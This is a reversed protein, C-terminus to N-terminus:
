ASVNKSSRSLPAPRTATPWGRMLLMGGAISLLFPICVPGCLVVCDPSVEISIRQRPDGEEHSVEVVVTGAWKAEFTAVAMGNSDTLLTVERDDVSTFGLPNTFAIDGTSQDKVVTFVLEREPVGLDRFGQALASIEGTTGVPVVAPGTSMVADVDLDNTRGVVFDSHVDSFAIEGICVQPDTSIDLGRIRYAKNASDAHKLGSRFRKRVKMGNKLVIEVEIKDILGGPVWDIQIAKIDEIKLDPDKINRVILTEVSGKKQVAKVKLSNEQFIQIEASDGNEFEMTIGLGAGTDFGTLNVDRLSLCVPSLDEVDIAIGQDPEAINFKLDGEQIFPADSGPLASYRDELIGDEFDDVVEELAIFATQGASDEAFMAPEAVLFEIGGDFAGHQEAFPILFTDVLEGVRFVELLLDIPVVHDKDGSGGGAPRTYTYCNFDCDAEELMRKVRAAHADRSEGRRRATQPGRVTCTDRDWNYWIIQVFNKKEDLLYIARNCGADFVCKALCTANADDGDCVVEVKLFVGDVCFVKMEKGSKDTATEKLVKGPGDSKNCTLQAIARCPLLVVSVVTVTALLASGGSFTFKRM